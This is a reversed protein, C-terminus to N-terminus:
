NAKNPSDRMCSACSELHCSRCPSHNRRWWTLLERKWDKGVPFVRDIIKPDFGLSQLYLKIEDRRQPQMTPLGLFKSNIWGFPNESNWWPYFHLEGLQRVKSKQTSYVILSPIQKGPYDELGIHIEKRGSQKVSALCVWVMDKREYPQLIMRECNEDLKLRKM